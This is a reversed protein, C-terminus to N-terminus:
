CVHDCALLNLNSRVVILSVSHDDLFPALVDSERSIRFVKCREEKRTSFISLHTLAFFLPESSRTHRSETTVDERPSPTLSSSLPAQIGTLCTEVAFSHLAIRQVVRMEERSGKRSVSSRLPDGSGGLCGAIRSLWSHGVEEKSFTTGYVPCSNVHPKGGGDGNYM